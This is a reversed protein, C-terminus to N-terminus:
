VMTKSITSIEAVPLFTKLSLLTMKGGKGSGTDINIVNYHRQIDYDPTHGVIVTHIGQVPPVDEQGYGWRARNWLASMVITRNWDALSATFKGWDYGPVDGHVVGVNGVQIAVPLSGLALRVEQQEQKPLCLFWQQGNQIRDWDDLDRTLIMQEHNGRVPHFWSKDLFEMVRYSEPGRDVLDGVPFVRDTEPNFGVMELLAEFESFHGHIDGVGYDTGVLNPEFTQFLNM